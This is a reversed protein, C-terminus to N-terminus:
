KAVQQLGHCQSDAFSTLGLYEPCPGHERVDGWCAQILPGPFDGDYEQGEPFNFSFLKGYPFDIGDLNITKNSLVLTYNRVVGPPAIKEYDTTINYQERTKTNKLWCERDSATSCPIWDPGLTPYECRLEAGPHGKRRGTPPKFSPGKGNELIRYELDPDINYTLPNNTGHLIDLKATIPYQSGELAGIPSLTLWNVVITITAWFREVLM